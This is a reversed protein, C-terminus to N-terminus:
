SCCADISKQSVWRETGDSRRVQWVSYRNTAYQDGATDRFAIVEYKNGAKDEIKMGVHVDM